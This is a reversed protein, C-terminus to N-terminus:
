ARVSGNCGFLVPLCQFQFRFAWATTRTIDVGEQGLLVCTGDTISIPYDPYEGKGQQQLHKFMQTKGEEDIRTKDQKTIETQWRHYAQDIPQLNPLESIIGTASCAM